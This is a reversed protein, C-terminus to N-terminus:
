RTHSRKLTDHLHPFRREHECFTACFEYENGLCYTKTFNKDSIKKGKGLRFLALCNVETDGLVNFPCPM